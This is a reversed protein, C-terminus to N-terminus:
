ALKISLDSPKDAEALMAKEAELAVGSKQATVRFVRQGPAIAGLALTKLKTKTKESGDVYITAQGDFDGDITLNVFVPKDAAQKDAIQKMEQAHAKLQTEVETLRSRSLNGLETLSAKFEERWTEGEGAAISDLQTCYNQALDALAARARVESASDGITTGQLLKLQEFQFQTWLNRIAVIVGIYRFYGASAASSREIFSIAAM